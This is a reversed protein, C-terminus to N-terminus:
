AAALVQAQFLRGGHPIEGRWAILQLLDWLVAQNSTVVPLGLTRELAEVAEFARVNACSLLVADIGGAEAHSTAIEVIRQPEMRAAERADTFNLGVSKVVVFGAAELAEREERSFEDAFPCVHLIRTAGIASLARKIAVMTNTSPVALERTMREALKVDGTPGCAVSAGTCNFVIADPGMDKLYTAEEIAELHARTLSERTVVGAEKRLRIRHVHFRVQPPCYLRLDDEGITNLSPVVMGVRLTKGPTATTTTQTM